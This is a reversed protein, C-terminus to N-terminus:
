PPCQNYKDIFGSVAGELGGGVAGGLAGVLGGSAGAIGGGIAGIGGKIAASEVYDGVQCSPNPHCQNYKDVFGNAAGTLGGGVAGTFAGVPGAVSGGLAGGVAGIGGKIAAAEVYDSVECSPNPHFQNYKDVM